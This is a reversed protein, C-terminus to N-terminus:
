MGGSALPILVDNILFVRLFGLVLIAIVPSIDIGGLNPLLRRIPGLVPETLRWLALGVQRVFPQRANIVNFSVLWSMVVQAILIWTYLWIVNDVLWILATM